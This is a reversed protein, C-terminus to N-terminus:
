GETHEPARCIEWHGQYMSTFLLLLTNMTQSDEPFLSFLRVCHYLAMLKTWRLPSTSISAPPLISIFFRVKLLLSCMLSTCMSSLPHYKQLNPLIHPVPVSSRTVLLLHSPLFLQNVSTTEASQQFVGSVRVATRGSGIVWSLVSIFSPSMM